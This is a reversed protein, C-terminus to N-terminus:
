RAADRTKMIFSLVCDALAYPGMYNVSHAAGPVVILEADPMRRVISALDGNALMMPSGVQM